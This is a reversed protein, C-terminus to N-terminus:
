RKMIRPTILAFCAGSVLLTLGLSSVLHTLPMETGDSILGVVYISLSLALTAFGLEAAFVRGRFSEAVMRQLIVTSFVWVIGGGMHGTFVCLLALAPHNVFGLAVYPLGFLAFGLLIARLQSETNDAVWRRGLVPGVGTGLARAVFLASVGLDPRGNFSYVGEGLLTLVLQVGGALGIGAKFMMVLAVKSHAKIYGLGAILDRIGLIQLLDGGEPRDVRRCYQIRMIFLASALFSLADIGLVIRWGLLHTALGGLAAGLAYMVSWTLGGLANATTLEKEPVLDPILASRAPEFFAGVTAQLLTLSLTLPVAWQPLFPVVFYCPVILLRLFDAWLMINRRCFRDAAVGAAPGALFAPVLKMIFIGGIAQAANAGIERLMAILALLSFWDGLLSITRGVFLMRFAPLERLLAVYGLAQGDDRSM